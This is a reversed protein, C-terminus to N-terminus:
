WKLFTSMKDCRLSSFSPKGIGARLMGQEFNNLRPEDVIMSSKAPIDKQEFSKFIM